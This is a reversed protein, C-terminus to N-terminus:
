RMGIKSIPEELLPLYIIQGLTNDDTKDFLLKEIDEKKVSGLWNNSLDINISQSEGMKFNYELNNEINNTKILPMGEINQSKKFDVPNIRPHMFLVGVSNKSIINNKIIVKGDLGAFGIGLNNNLFSNYEVLLNASNFRLGEHNKNFLCDSIKANSYQVQLGTFAYHFECYEFINDSGAALVMIYSWDKVGPKESASTFIIKNNKNGHAVIRGEVIIGGDGISNKDRDTNKFSIITGPEITLVAGKKVVVIEDIVINEKWITDKDIVNDVKFGQNQFGSPQSNATPSDYISKESVRDKVKGVVININDIVLGTKFSIHHMTTGEYIGYVDGSQPSGGISNRAVIYFDGDSDIPIFYNGENDTEGLYETRESLHHMLFVPEKSKYALVFLGSVPKGGLDRVQGKIGYGSNNNLNELTIYENTKIKQAEAFSDRDGKPYCPVEIQVAKDPKVEVPNKPYYCFLDGKKLPRMKKGSEKKKAIVIYKGPPLHINFTGDANISETKYGLGKFIKTGPTYVAVYADKVPSDKYTVVGSISATGESYVPEKIENSMFTLWLNRPEVKIPNNGHYSFFERGDKNGKATFYYEGEKLQFKYLGQKDTPESTLLPAGSNIDDYSKYVYVKAGKLPGKDTFVRGEINIDGASALIPYLCFLLIFLKRM